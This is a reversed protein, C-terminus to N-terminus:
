RGRPAHVQDGHCNPRGWASSKPGPVWIGSKPMMSRYSVRVSMSADVSNKRHLGRGKLDGFVSTPEQDHDFLHILIFPNM